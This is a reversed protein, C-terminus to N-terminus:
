GGRTVRRFSMTEQVVVTWSRESELDSGAMEARVFPSVDRAVARVTFSGAVSADFRFSPGSGAAKGNVTWVVDVTEGDPQLLEVSFSVDSRLATTVSRAAPSETGPEIIDIGQSPNGWGGRHLRLVFQQACIRCFGAGLTRMLCDHQPRYIGTEKYRAGEYLGVDNGAGLVTPLPTAAGIWSAWKILGPSTQDTVNSECKRSGSVDSCTPYGPYPAGYEDALGAFSHGFEHQAIAAASANLAVVGIYGGSGGYTTDNVLVLIRDWDPAAAAATLVKSASVVLLRYINQSCFTADFSTTVFSGQLPDTKAALDACCNAISKGACTAQYPPHSAGSQASPTFLTKVSVFSRYEALPSVSFFRDVLGAADAEFKSQDTSTYGDGMVLLNLRNASRDPGANLISNTSFRSLPLRSGEALEALDFEVTSMGSRVDLSGIGSAATEADLVVPTVLLRTEASVPVRVVFAREAQQVERPDVAPEGHLGEEFHLGRDIHAADRFLTTGTSSVLQFVVADSGRPTERLREEVEVPTRSALGASLEVFQHSMPVPTGNEDLTFVVYHAKTGKGSARESALVPSAGSLVLVIGLGLFLSRLTSQPTSSTRRVGPPLAVAM